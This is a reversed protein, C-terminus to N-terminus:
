YLMEDQKQLVSTSGACRGSLCFGNYCPNEHHTYNDCNGGSRIKTSCRAYGHSLDCFLFESGCQREQSGHCAPRPAYRYLRENYDNSIGDINRLPEFPRMLNQVFHNESSCEPLDPPYSRSRAERSQRHQRWHEWISDVFAHHLFFLPDNASSTQNFMDGGIWVLANAHTYELSTWDTPYKCGQKKVVTLLDTIATMLITQTFNSSILFIVSQPATYALVGIVDSHQMVAQIDNENLPRGEKKPLRRIHRGEPTTWHSIFGNIITGDKDNEGMLDKSFLITDTSEPIANELTSDWYPLSVDPDVLRLAIELRKIYERHWPLFAPGSHAGGSLEPNSHWRTIKDYDGSRKLQDFANHLREREEGSLQRYEKRIALTLKKGNSLFCESKRLSGNFFPCLCNLDMCTLAQMRQDGTLTLLPPPTANAQNRKLQRSGHAAIPITPAHISRDSMRSRSAQMSPNTSPSPFKKRVARQQGPPGVTDQEITYLDKKLTAALPPGQVASKSNLVQQRQNPARSSSLSSSSTSRTPHSRVNNVQGTGACIPRTQRPLTSIEYQIELTMEKPEKSNYTDAMLNSKLGSPVAAALKSKDRTRTRSPYQAGESLMSHSSFWSSWTTWGQSASSWRSRSASWVRQSSSAGNLSTSRHKRVITDWKKLQSCVIQLTLNPARDCLALRINHQAGTSYQLLIFLTILLPIHM